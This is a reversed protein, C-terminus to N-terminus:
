SDNVASNKKDKQLTLVNTRVHTIRRKLTRVRKIWNLEINSSACLNTGQIPAKTHKEINYYYGETEKKEARKNEM